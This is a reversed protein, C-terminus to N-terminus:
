KDDAGPGTNLQVYFGRATSFGTKFPLCHQESLQAVM